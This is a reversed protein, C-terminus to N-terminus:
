ALQQKECATGMAGATLRPNSVQVTLRPSRGHGLDGNKYNSYVMEFPHNIYQKVWM